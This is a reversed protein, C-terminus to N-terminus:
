EGTGASTGFKPGGHGEQECADAAAKFKPDQMPDTMPGQDSASDSSTSDSSNSNDSSPGGKEIKFHGDGDFTPDPVDVGHDRMCQAFALAQDRMQAEQEPTPKPANQQARDMIPQCAKQAADFTADGVKPGGAQGNVTIGVGGNDNFTPDPMDVGHDRM